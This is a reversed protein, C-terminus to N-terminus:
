YGFSRINHENALYSPPTLNTIDWNGDGDIHVHDRQTEMLLQEFASGQEAIFTEFYKPEFYINETHGGLLVSLDSKLNNRKRLQPM